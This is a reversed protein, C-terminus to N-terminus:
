DSDSDSGGGYDLMASSQAAPIHDLDVPLAHKGGGAKGKGTGARGGAKVAEKKAGAKVGKGSFGAVGNLVPAPVPASASLVELGGGPQAHGNSEVAMGMGMGTTAAMPALAMLSTTTSSALSSAANAGAKHPRQGKSMLAKARLAALQALSSAPSGVLSAAAGALTLANSAAIPSPAASRAIAITDAKPKQQSKPAAAAAPAALAPGSSSGSGSNSLNAPTAPAARSQSVFEVGSTDSLNNDDIVIVKKAPNAAKTRAVEAQPRVQQLASGGSGTGDDDDDDFSDTDSESDSDSDSDARADSSPVSQGALPSTRENHNNQGGDLVVVDEEMPVNEAEDEGDQAGATALAEEHQQHWVDCDVRTVIIGVPISRFPRESPPVFGHRELYARNSISGEEQRAQHHGKQKKQKQKKAKPQERKANDQSPEAEAATSSSPHPPSPLSTGAAPMTPADIRDQKSDIASAEQEEEVARAVIDRLVDADFAPASERDEEMVQDGDGAAAAFSGALARDVDQILRRKKAQDFAALADLAATPASSIPASPFAAGVHAPMSPVAQTAAADAAVDEDEDDFGLSGFGPPLAYAADSAGASAPPPAFGLLNALGQRGTFAQRRPKRSGGRLPNIQISGAPASGNKSPGAEAGLPVIADSEQDLSLRARKGVHGEDGRSPRHDVVFAAFDATQQSRQQGAASSEPEDYDWTGTEQRKRLIEERLQEQQVARKRKKQANTRMTKASGAGPPVLQSTSTSPASPAAAAVRASKGSAEKSLQRTSVPTLLPESSSSGDSDIDDRALASAPMSKPILGAQSLTSSILGAPPLPFAELTHNSAPPQARTNVASVSVLPIGSVGDSSDSDSDSSGESDSKSKASSGSGSGSSSGSGASSSSSSSSDASSSDSSDSSSSSLEHAELEAQSTLESDSETDSGGAGHGSGADEQLGSETRARRNRVGDRRGVAVSKRATQKIHKVPKEKKVAISVDIVDGDRLLDAPRYIPLIRFGAQELVLEREAAPLLVGDESAHAHSALGGRVLQELQTYDAAPPLPLMFPTGPLPPAARVRLRLAPVAAPLASPGASITAM